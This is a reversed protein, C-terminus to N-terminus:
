KNAVAPHRLNTSVGKAGAAALCTKSHDGITAARSTTRHLQFVQQAPAPGIMPSSSIGRLGQFVQPRSSSERGLHRSTM